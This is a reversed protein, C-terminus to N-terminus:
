TQTNQRNITHSTWFYLGFTCIKKDGRDERRRPHKPFKSKEETEGRMVVKWNEGIVEFKGEVAQLRINSKVAEITGIMLDGTGIM